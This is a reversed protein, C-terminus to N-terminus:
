KLFYPIDFLLLDSVYPPGKPTYNIATPQCDQLILTKETKFKQFKYQMLWPPRPLLANCGQERWFIFYSDEIKNLYKNIWCIRCLSFMNDGPSLPSQWYAGRKIMKWPQIREIQDSLCVVHTVNVMVVFHCFPNWLVCQTSRSM